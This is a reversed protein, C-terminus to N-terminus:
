PRRFGVVNTLVGKLPDERFSVVMDSSEGGALFDVRFSAFEPAGGGTTLFIQVQVDQALRDGRNTVRVPLYHAGNVAQIREIQPQVEIRPPDTGRTLHQHTLLGVLGVVILASIALTSWEALSRGTDQAPETQEGPKQAQGGGASKQRDAATEENM